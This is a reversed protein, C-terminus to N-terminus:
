RNLDEAWKQIKKITLNILLQKHIKSILGEDTMNNAFIEGM